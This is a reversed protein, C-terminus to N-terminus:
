RSWRRMGAVETTRLARFCTAAFRTPQQGGPLWEGSGMLLVQSKLHSSDNSTIPRSSSAARIVVVVGARVVALIAARTRSIRVTTSRPQGRVQGGVEDALTEGRMQARGVQEGGLLALAVGVPVPLVDQVGLRVAAERDDREHPQGALLGGDM